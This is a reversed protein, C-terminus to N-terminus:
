GGHRRVLTEIGSYSGSEKDGDTYDKIQGLVYGAEGSSYSGPVATSWPDGAAGAANLKNGTTGATLHDAIAEDWVADAVEAATLSGGGTWAADGRDRIAELSDTSRDFSWATGNDLLQGIVSGLTVDSSITSSASLLKDLKIDSLATDVQSNVTAASVDNLADLTTKTGSISYGTKDNNTVVIVTDSSSNFLKQYTV